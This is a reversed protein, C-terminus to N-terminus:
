LKETKKKRNRSPKSKQALEQEYDEFTSLKPKGAPNRVLGRAGPRPRRAIASNRAARILKEDIEQHCHPCIM